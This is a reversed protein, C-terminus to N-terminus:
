KWGHHTIVGELDVIGPVGAGALGKLLILEKHAEVADILEDRSVRRATPGHLAPLIKCAAVHGSEHTALRVHAAADILTGLWTRSATGLRAHWVGRDLEVTGTHFEGYAGRGLTPGLRWPGIKTMLTRPTIGPETGEDLTDNTM